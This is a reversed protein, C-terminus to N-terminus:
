ERSELYHELALSLSGLATNYGERYGEPKTDLVKDAKFVEPTITWENACWTAFQELEHQLLDRFAQHLPVTM